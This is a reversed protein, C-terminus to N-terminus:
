VVSKRNEGEVKAKGLTALLTKTRKQIAADKPNQANLLRLRFRLYEVVDFSACLQCGGMAARIQQLGEDEALSSKRPKGLAKAVDASVTKAGAGVALVATQGSVWSIVEISDKKIFTEMNKFDSRFDNPIRVNMRDAKVSGLRVSGGKYEVKFKLNENN